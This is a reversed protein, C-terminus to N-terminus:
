VKVPLKYGLHTYYHQARHSNCRLSHRGDVLCDRRVEAVVCNQHSMGYYDSDRRTTGHVLVFNHHIEEIDLLTPKM